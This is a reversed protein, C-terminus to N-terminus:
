SGGRAVRAPKWTKELAARIAAATERYAEIDGGAPDDIEDPAALLRARDEAEPYQDAVYRLEARSMCLM